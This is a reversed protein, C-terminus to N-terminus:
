SRGTSLTIGATFHHTWPTVWLTAGSELHVTLHSHSLKYQLFLAVRKSVNWGTGFLGQWALGAWQYAKTGSNGVAVNVHPVSYGAGAGAFLNLHGAWSPGRLPHAPWRFLLGALVLNNGNSFDLADFSDALREITDVQLGGRTGRVPLYHERLSIVKFHNFELCVGWSSERGPWYSVRGGYYPAGGLPDSEWAVGTYVLDTGGPAVLRVDSQSTSVDGTYLAATWEAHVRSDSLLVGVCSTLLRLCFLRVDAPERLHPSVM